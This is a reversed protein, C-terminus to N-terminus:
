DNFENPVPVKGICFVQRYRLGLCQSCDTLILCTGSMPSLGALMSIQLISCCHIVTFTHQVTNMVIGLICSCSREMLLPRSWETLLPWGQDTLLCCGRDLTFSCSCEMLLRRSWDMIFSRGRDSLLSCSHVTLLSRSSGTLLSHSCGALM